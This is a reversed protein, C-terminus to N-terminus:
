PQVSAPVTLVDTSPSSDTTPTGTVTASGNASKLPSIPTPPVGPQSFQNCAAVCTLVVACLAFIVIATNWRSAHVGHLRAWKRTGFALILSVLLIAALVAEPLGPLPSRPALPPRFPPGVARTVSLTMTVTTTGGANSPNPTFACTTNTLSAFGSCAFTIQGSTPGQFDLGITGSSQGSVITLTFPSAINHPILKSAVIPISFPASKTFDAIAFAMIAASGNNPVTSPATFTSQTGSAPQFSGSPTWTLGTVAGFGQPNSDVFTAPFGVALTPAPTPAAFGCPDSSIHTLDTSSYVLPNCIDKLTQADTGLTIAFSINSSIVFTTSASPQNPDAVSNATVTIQAKNQAAGLCGAPNAACSAAMPVVPPATYSYTPPSATQSGNFSGCGPISSSFSFNPPAICTGTIVLTVGLSLDSQNAGTGLNVNGGTNKPTFDVNAGILATISAMTLRISSTITFPSTTATKNPDANATAQVVFTNLPPTGTGLPVIQPPTYAGTQTNVSGCPALSTTSGGCSVIAWTVGLSPVNPDNNATAMFTDTNGSPPLDEIKVTAFTSTFTITINSTITISGTTATKSPDAVATAQVVFVNAPSLPVKAPPTYAGNSAVTGCPALNTTSGGCSIMVWTVGLSPVNPDNNATAAFTDTGAPLDEIKVTTFTSTIAVNINSTITINGTTATKSTDAVSTAQVVFVNAPSLPASTPPTYAGTQANVSGCPVLNTASGACSIMAWTVGLSPSNPDNNATAAFTDTGAPLDEIKVTTFTSTITVTITSTVTFSNSTAGTLSGDSASLTFTGAKTPVLNSFTAVGSSAPVTTTSSGSFAGGVSITISVSSTDTAVVNGNADEVSVAVSALAGGATGNVPQTTFALQSPTITVTTTRPYFHSIPPAEPSTVGITVTGGAPISKPATYLGTSDITGVTTLNGSVGMANPPMNNVTWILTTSKAFGLASTFNQTKGTPVSPTLPSIVAITVPRHVVGRLATGVTVAPSATSSAIDVAALTGDDLGVYATVGDYPIAIGQPHATGSGVSVNGVASSSNTGLDIAQIFTGGPCTYYARQATPTNPATISTSGAVTCIPTVPPVLSATSNTSLNIRYVTADATSSADIAYGVTGGPDAGVTGAVVNGGAPVSNSDTLITITKTAVDIAYSASETAVYATGSTTPTTTTAPAFTVGLPGPGPVPVAPSTQIPLPAAVALSPVQIVILQAQTAGTPLSVLYLFTGDPSVALNATMPATFTTPSPFLTAFNITSINAPLSPDALTVVTLSADTDNEVFLLSSDPSVALNTPSHGVAITCAVALPNASADVVVVQNNLNDVAFLTRGTPMTPPTSSTSCAPPPASWVPQAFSFLSFFLLSFVARSSTSSLQPTM